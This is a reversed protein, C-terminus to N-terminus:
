DPHTVGNLGDVVGLVDGIDYFDVTVFNPLRDNSAMCQAAREGLLPNYNVMEALQPRGVTRTLFHNLIFLSHAPDGRNPACTFDAAKEFSYPTEFAYNWVHHYWAIPAAGTDSFVVLRRGSDIMEALTPWPQNRPQAHLFPLLGAQQFVAATQEASVYSEFIISVIENPHDHLFTRIEALGDLLLKRGLFQCDEHCLYVENQYVHIDLMLARVGDQLQRTVAYHQNPAQFQDEANSMANHTTAYAVENFRRACLATAGNCGDAQASPCGVLARKVGRLVEDITVQTDGDGDFATCSVAPAENLVINVGALLEDVTVSADNNCDGACPQARATTAAGAVLLLALAGILSHHFRDNTM